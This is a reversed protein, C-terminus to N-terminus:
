QNHEKLVNETSTVWVEIIEKKIDDDIMDWEQRLGRRDTLDKVILKVIKLANRRIDNDNAM